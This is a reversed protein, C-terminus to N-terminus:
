RPGRRARSLAEYLTTMERAVAEMTRPPRVGARLRAVQERDRSLRELVDRWAAVTRHGVLLGDVGNRVLEAIGGLASGVVPVGAAFAELVVLPGTELWRSPVAVLDYSRLIPVVAQNGVTPHFAIRADGAATAELRRRYAEDGPGQAVGYVDLALPARPLARIAEVLLDLGKVPDLRGLYAIRLPGPPPPEECGSVAGPAAAPLGHRSIVVKSPDIDNEILLDRSWQSLAVAADVERVLARFVGHRVSVLERMRIATVADGALGLSGVARGVVAPVTALVASALRGAGRGHLACATCIRPRLRGDCAEEGWRMLTGRVCSVTPTHYTFVVPLGRRRAERVLRLSVGRTLAHLHVLDPRETELIAAFGQAGPADGEGYLDRADGVPGLRFRRVVLGDHEYAADRDGPAAVISVVGLARLRRALGDVYIETGGVADPFFGFPVHIVRIPPPEGEGLLPDSGGPGQRSGPGHNRPGVTSTLGLGAGVSCSEVM